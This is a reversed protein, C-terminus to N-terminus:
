GLRRRLFPVCLLLASGVLICTSPEPVSAPAASTLLLGDGSGGNTRMTFTAWASPADSTSQFMLAGNQAFPIGPETGWPGYPGPQGVLEKSLDLPLTVWWWMGTFNTKVFTGNGSSAGSVTMSLDVLWGPFSSLSVFNGPNPILSTDVTMWGTATATNGYSVGSWQLNFTTIPGAAAPLALLLALSVIATFLKM